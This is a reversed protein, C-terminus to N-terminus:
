VRMGRNVIGRFYLRVKEFDEALRGNGFLSELTVFVVSYIAAGALIVLFLNAARMFWIALTMVAASLLPRALMALIEHVQFETQSVALLYNPLFFVAASCVRAVSAGVAGLRPALLLNMSVNVSLSILLLIALRGQYEKIIMLRSSPVNLYTFVLSWIVIQLPLVAESLSPGYVLNVIHPALVTIGLVMPLVLAGLYFFSTSYLANFKSLDSRHYQVLTPYVAVRYAQSFIALSSVVTVAGSYWGVESESNTISLIVVDLQYELTILFGIVLFPFLLRLDFDKLLYNRWKFERFKVLRFAASLVIAADLFSGAIWAWVVGGLGSRSALAFLAGGVKVCSGLFASLAPVDFRNGAGLLARGVDRLGDPVICLAIVLIPASVGAPYAILRRVLLVIVGYLAISLMLRLAFFYIFYPTAVSPDRAVQRTVLEDLGWTLASFLILYTTALSFIGSHESDLQRAVLVFVVVNSARTALNLALVLFTNVVLGGRRLM